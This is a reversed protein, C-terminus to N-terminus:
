DVEWLLAVLTTVDAQTLQYRKAKAITQTLEQQIEQRQAEKEMEPDVAAVFSGKGPVTHILGSADLQDYAKKVTLASIHLEKALKRVSPLVTEATLQGKMIQQQIQNYLQEYIPVMSNHQIM